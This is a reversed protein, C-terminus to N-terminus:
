VVDTLREIAVLVPNELETVKIVAFTEGPEGQTVHLVKGELVCDSYLQGMVFQPDPFNIDGVKFQVQRNLLEVPM